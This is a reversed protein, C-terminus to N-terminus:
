ASKINEPAVEVTVEDFALVSDLCVEGLSAEVNEKLQQLIGM